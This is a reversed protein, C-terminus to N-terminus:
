EGIHSAHRLLVVTPAEVRGITTSVLVARRVSSAVIPSHIFRVAADIFLLAFLELVATDISLAMINIVLLNM